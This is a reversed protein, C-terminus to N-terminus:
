KGLTAAPAKQALALAAKVDDWLKDWAAREEDPMAVRDPGPRVGALDPDEQWHSLNAAAEQRQPAEGSRAQRRRLALDANLWALAKERLKARDKDKHKDADKGKGCGALAAGCAANYRHGAKLDEVLKPDAAFADEFLRVAGAYRKEFPQLCFLALDCAEGPNKPKDKGTLLDRLRLQLARMRRSQSLNRLAYRYNPDIRLAEQYAAIAGDLDGKDRLVLGLNNHAPALKPDIRIAEKYAAIAGDVDKKDYLANGLNFHAHAYNPDLRIAEKWAAIAGDLDKKARLALGMHNHAPAFKPDLRIAEKYATIAGDLDRKDYLANGLNNHAYTLKSDLRIAEKYAAIAGDLDRKDRLAGGLNNHAPAFKPDLRIAEKYAALAGDVDGKDRLALGLNNHASAYKPDIRIAEMCAAISGDLDKKDRLAIGLNNHSPADNPDLRIAEKHAALAGDVDGKDRLANGLNTHAFVSRPNLRIAEKYAALAGDLNKQDRLANGLDNHPSADKPNLRIAEKYAALAGDVDGKDSLANGLGLHAASNGPAVAIAAQFWRLREEAGEQQNIPYTFGLAMLLGLEGPHRQVAMALLARRREQSIAENDALFAAFGPPQQLAEPRAALKALAALDNSCVTDRVADRFPDADLAQLAARVAASRQVRLLRDLAAVLRERVVSGSMRAAAAEADVADPDAGFRGLAERYGAAVVEVEPYNSGARTWRFQDVADLDRLVTLDDQCQVLRAAEGEIRGEVARKQAAELTVAATAADGVRLAQQCQDLLGKVAEANRAQRERAVRGQEAQWWGFALGSILLMAVALALALQVRRRKRQERARVRELEAARAREEAAQRLSAVAAAVEAGDAPRESARPSLCRKCLAVLEPEAGCGDLRAFCESVDGQAAKVRTTETSAAAFPPQGTLIVALIAGLGFVDSRQDVKAVAGVAQEPPMFAPTGLVSGTQTYLGDADRLSVVATGATTAAPDAAEVPRAALVKALGWDMLQVEGFSGVMVNAPKLDRHLVGHAHAYAVAQCVQEFVAVFRGREASPNPREALLKELTQGKILKMALFPRGDPLTGLDHVPPIAPHQLQATIRAEDAFRRAVGSEPAYKDQLVKVAVERSLTTDTARWIVGMGGHAIEDLLQYRSVSTDTPAARTDVADSPASTEVTDVAPPANGPYSEMM